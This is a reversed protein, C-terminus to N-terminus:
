FKVLSLFTNVFFEYCNSYSLGSPGLNQYPLVDTNCYQIIIYHLTSPISYFVYVLNNVLSKKAKNVM